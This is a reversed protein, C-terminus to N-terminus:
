KRRNQALVAAASWARDSTTYDGLTHAPLRPRPPVHVLWGGEESQSVGYGMRQANLILATRDTM